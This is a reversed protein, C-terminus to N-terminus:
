SLDAQRQTEAIEGDQHLKRWRAPSFGTVKRFTRGFHAADEYGVAYGVESVSLATFMLLRKAELIVRSRIMDSACLNFGGKTAQNLLYPTVGLVSVYQATSWHERFHQDLLALFSALLTNGGSPGAVIQRAQMLQASMVIILRIHAAIVHRQAWSPHHYEKEIAAFDAKVREAFDGELEVFAPAHLPRRLANEDIGALCQRAFDASMSVVIADADGAIEFGHTVGAPVSSLALRPLANVQDDIVYSGQGGWWLSLQHLHDHRHLRVRGRHLSSRDSVREVHVFGPNVDRTPEGYIFYLPATGDGPAYAAISKSLIAM